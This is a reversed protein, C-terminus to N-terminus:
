APLSSAKFSFLSGRSLATAHTWCFLLTLLELGLTLRYVANQGQSQCIELDTFLNRHAAKTRNVFASVKVELHSYLLHEVRVYALLQQILEVIFDIHESLVSM